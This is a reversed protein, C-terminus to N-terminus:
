VFHIKQPTTHPVALIGGKDLHHIVHGSATADAVFKNAKDQRDALLANNKGILEHERIIQANAAVRQKGTNFVGITIISTLTLIYGGVIVTQPHNDAWEKSKQRFTKKNESM